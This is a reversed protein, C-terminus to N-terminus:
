PPPELDVTQGSLEHTSDDYYIIRGDKVEAHCIVIDNEGPLGFKRVVKTKVAPWFTPKYRDGNWIWDAGHKNGSGGAMHFEHFVNCVRCFVAPQGEPFHVVPATLIKAM